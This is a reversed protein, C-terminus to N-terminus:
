RVARKWRSAFALRPESAAHSQLQTLRFAAEVIVMALVVAFLRMPSADFSGGLASQFVFLGFLARAVPLTGLNLRRLLHWIVSCIAMFLALGIVALWDGGVIFFWGILGPASAHVATESFGMVDNTFLKTVGPEIIQDPHIRYNMTRVAVYGEVGVVRGVVQSLGGLLNSKHNSHYADGIGIQLAQGINEGEVRAERFYSMIPWAMAVACVFVVGLLVVSRRIPFLMYYLSVILLLTQMAGGRSGRLLMDVIAYVVMTVCGTLVWDRRSQAIGGYVTLLLLGPVITQGTYFTIGALRFPLEVASAGMLSIGTKYTIGGVMLALAVAVAYVTRIRFPGGQRVPGRPPPDDRVTFRSAVYVTFAFVSIGFVQLMFTMDQAAAGFRMAWPASIVLGDDGVLQYFRVVYGLLFVAFVILDLLYQKGLRKSLEAWAIVSASLLVHLGVYYVLNAYMERATVAFGVWIIAVALMKMIVAISQDSPMRRPLGRFQRRKDKMEM